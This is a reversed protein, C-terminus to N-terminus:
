EFVTTQSIQVLNINSYLVKHEEYLWIRSFCKGKTRRPCKNQPKSDIQQHNESQKEKQKIQDWQSCIEKNKRNFNTRLWWAIKTILLTSRANKVLDM